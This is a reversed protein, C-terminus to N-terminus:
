FSEGVESFSVNGGLGKSLGLGVPLQRSGQGLTPAGLGPCAAAWEGPNGIGQAQHPQLPM